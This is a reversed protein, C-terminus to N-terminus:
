SAASPSIMHRARLDAMPVFQLGTPSYKRVRCAAPMLSGLPAVAGRGQSSDRAGFGHGAEYRCGGFVVDRRIFVDRMGGACCLAHLCEHFPTEPSGVSESRSPHAKPVM